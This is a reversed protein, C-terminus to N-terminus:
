VPSTRSLVAETLNRQLRTRPNFDYNLDAAPVLGPIKELDVITTVVGTFVLRDNAHIVHDPEIPTILEGARDIEILYLGPLHRLGAAEVTRDVLPCHAQVLMEVLYERRHDGLQEVLDTRNPLLRRSFLIMYAAGLLACPLGVYGIEFLAMPALQERFAPTWQESAYQDRLWANVVLTTSTGILTCVGGLITLYSLPMLLRSPSISRKRCWDIIVPMMMVVLPTNLLFASVPVITLALRRLARGESHVNGLLKEGVWDLVGTNQLAAAVIYLGAITLVAQNAFGAIAREPKVVGALTVAVLGGMFLLDAPIGRRRQIVVFIGATVLVAIWPHTWVPM